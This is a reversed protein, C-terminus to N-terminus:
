SLQRHLSQIRQRLWYTIAKNKVINQILEEQIKGEPIMRAPIFDGSIEEFNPFVALIEELAERGLAKIAFKGAFLSETKTGEAFIIEHQDFLVHFYEVETVTEDIYVGPLAVLKIAPILVESSGTMREAIKSSVMMRHQRSVLLDRKPLGNGLAGAVIM